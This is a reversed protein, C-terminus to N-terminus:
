KRQRITKLKVGVVSIRIFKFTFCPMPWLHIASCAYMIVPARVLNLHFNFINKGVSLIVDILFVVVTIEIKSIVVECYDMSKLAIKLQINFFFLRFKM